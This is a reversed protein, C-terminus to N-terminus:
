FDFLTTAERTKLLTMQPSFATLNKSNKGESPLNLQRKQKQPEEFM